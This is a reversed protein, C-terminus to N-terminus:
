EEKKQNQMKKQVGRKRRERSRQKKGAKKKREYADPRAGAVVSGKKLFFEREKKVDTKLPGREELAVRGTGLKERKGKLDRQTTEKTLSDNSRGREANQNRKNSVKEIHTEKENEVREASNAV